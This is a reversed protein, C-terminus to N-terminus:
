RWGIFFFSKLTRRKTNQCTSTSLCTKRPVPGLLFTAFALAANAARLLRNVPELVVVLLFFRGFGGTLLTCNCDVHLSAAHHKLASTWETHTHTALAARLRPAWEGPGQQWVAVLGRWGWLETCWCGAREGQICGALHTWGGSCASLVLNARFEFFGQFLSFFSFSLADRRIFATTSFATMWRDPQHVCSLFFSNSVNVQVWSHISLLKIAGNLQTLVSMEGKNPVTAGSSFALSTYIFVLHPAPYIRTHIM